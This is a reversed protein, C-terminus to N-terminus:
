TAGGGAMGSLTSGALDVPAIEPASPVPRIAPAQVSRAHGAGGVPQGMALRAGRVHLWRRLRSPGWPDVLFAGVRIATRATELGARHPAAGQWADEGIHVTHLALEDHLRM